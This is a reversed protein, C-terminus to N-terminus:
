FNQITNKFVRIVPGLIKPLSNDIIGALMCTHILVYKEERKYGPVHYM